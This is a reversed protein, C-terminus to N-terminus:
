FIRTQVFLCELCIPRDYLPRQPLQEGKESSLQKLYSKLHDRLGM